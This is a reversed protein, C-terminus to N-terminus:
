QTSKEMTHAPRVAPAIWALLVVVLAVTALPRMELALPWVHLGAVTTIAPRPQTDWAHPLAYGLGVCAVFVVILRLAQWGARGMRLADILAAGALGLAIAAAPLIWVYHHVWATPSLLVMACLAVAYAADESSPPRGGSAGVGSTSAGANHRIHRFFVGPAGRFLIHGFVLALVVLLIRAVFQAAGAFSAGALATLVPAFLAQNHGLSADGAGVQLAQPLMALITGPGVLAVSVLTLAALSAVAALAAEWRRRLLLYLILIAPTFKLMAALAIMVGVWREHGHR